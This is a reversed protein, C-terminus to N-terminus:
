MVSRMEVETDVRPSSLEPQSTLAFAVVFWDQFLQCVLPLTSNIQIKVQLSDVNRAMGILFPVQVAVAVAIVAM